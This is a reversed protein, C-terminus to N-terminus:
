VLYLYISSSAHIYSISVSPMASSLKPCVMLTTYVLLVGILVSLFNSSVLLIMFIFLRETWFLARAQDEIKKEDREQAKTSNM